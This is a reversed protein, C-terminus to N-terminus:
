TALLRASIRKSQKHDFQYKPNKKLKELYSKISPEEDDQLTKEGSNYLAIDTSEDDLRSRNLEQQLVIRRIMERYKQKSDLGSVHTPRETETEQGDEEVEQGFGIGVVLLVLALELAKM